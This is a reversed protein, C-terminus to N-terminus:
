TSSTSAVSLRSHAEPAGTTASGSSWGHPSRTARVRSGGAVEDVEARRESFEWWYGFPDVCGLVGMEWM